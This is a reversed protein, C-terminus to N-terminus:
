DYKGLRVERFSKLLLKVLEGIAIFGDGDYQAEAEMKKLITQFDEVTCIRRNVIKLMWKTIRNFM